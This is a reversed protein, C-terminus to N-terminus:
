SGANTDESQAAQALRREVCKRLRARTRKMLTKIGDATMDLAEAIAARASGDRYQMDLAQRAKSEVTELCERLAAVIAEGDGTGALQAYREHLREIDGNSLERGNRRRENLLLNRAVMRLYGVTEPRSRQEFPKRLVALFTDQTLDDALAPEAGLARLYRWIGAQHERMLAPLDLRPSTQTMTM